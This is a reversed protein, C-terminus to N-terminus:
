FTDQPDVTWGPSSAVKRQATTYPLSRGQSTCSTSLADPADNGPVNGCVCGNQLVLLRPM